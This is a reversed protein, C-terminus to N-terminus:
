AKKLGVRLGVPGKDEEEEKEKQAAEGGRVLDADGIEGRLRSPRHDETTCELKDIRPHIIYEIDQTQLSLPLFPALTPSLPFSPTPLPASRISHRHTHHTCAYSGM